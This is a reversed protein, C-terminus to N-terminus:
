PSPQTVPAVRNPFVPQTTAQAPMTTVIPAMQVAPSQRVAVPIMLLFLFALVLLVPIGIWLALWWRSRRGPPPTQYELTAM